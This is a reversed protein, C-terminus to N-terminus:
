VDDRAALVRRGEQELITWKGLCQRFPLELEDNRFPAPAQRLEAAVALKKRRRRERASHSRDHSLDRVGRPRMVDDIGIRLFGEHQRRDRAEEDATRQDPMQMVDDAGFMEAGHLSTRLHHERIRTRGPHDHGRLGGGCGEDLGAALALQDLDNASTPQM